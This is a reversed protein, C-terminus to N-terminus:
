GPVFIGPHVETGESGNGGPDSGADDVERDGHGRRAPIFIRPM